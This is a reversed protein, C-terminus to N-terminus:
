KSPTIVITSAPNPVVLFYHQQLRDGQLQLAYTGVALPPLRLLLTGPRSADITRELIKRGTISYLTLLLPTRFATFDLLLTTHDVARLTIRHAPFFQARQLPLQAPYCLSDLHFRHPLSLRQRVGDTAIFRIRLSDLPPLQDQHIDFFFFNSNQWRHLPFTRYYLSDPTYCIATLRLPSLSSYAFTGIRYTTPALATAYLRPSLIIDYADMAALFDALGYGQKTDPSQSHAATTYLLQRVQWPKLEPFASLMLAIGGSILPTALSTGTGYSFQDTTQSRVCRVAVGQAAITPRLLGDARPGRSSFHAPIGDPRLAAVAIVSDADAPSLISLPQDGSNGAAAVVIMGCAVARNVARAVLTSKGDLETAAYSEEPTDFGRYGLSTSVIDVGLKDFWELAELYHDEEIHREWRLDETKALVVQVDYAAGILSDPFYGAIVSLVASGHGAQAPHDGPEVATVTDHQIFDYAALVRLRQFALHDTRFGTDTIGLVVNTGTIGLAHLFPINLLLLQHFANGYRPLEFAFSHAFHAPSFKSATPQVKRVFPLRGIAQIRISDTLVVIYNFWRSQMLISDALNRVQRVYPSYLPADALDFLHEAPRVKLRRQIARESYLQRTAEYLPTGPAFLTDGKDTFFVRYTHQQAYLFLFALFYISLVVFRRVNWEM